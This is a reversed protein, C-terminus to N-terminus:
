GGQIIYRELQELQTETEQLRNGVYAHFSCRMEGKCACDGNSHAESVLQRVETRLAEVQQLLTSDRM